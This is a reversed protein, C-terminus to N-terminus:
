CAVEADNDVAMERQICMNGSDTATAVLSDAVAVEDLSPTETVLHQWFM